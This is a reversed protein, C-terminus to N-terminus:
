HSWNSRTCSPFGAAGAASLAKRLSRRTRSIARTTLSPPDREPRLGAKGCRGASQPELQGHAPAQTDFRVNDIKGQCAAYAGCDHPKCDHGHFDPAFKARLAIYSAAATLVFSLASLDKNDHANFDALLGEHSQGMQGRIERLARTFTHPQHMEALLIQAAWPHQKLRTGYDSVIAAVRRSPPLPQARARLAARSGNLGLPDHRHRAWALALGDLDGFYEYLLRKGVKASDLVANVGIGNPGNRRLLLEFARLLARESTNRASRGRGRTPVGRM